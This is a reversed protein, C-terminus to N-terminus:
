GASDYKVTVWWEDEAPWPLICSDPFALGEPRIPNLMAESLGSM